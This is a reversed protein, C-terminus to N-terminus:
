RLNKIIEELIDGFEDLVEQMETFILEVPYIDPTAHVGVLFHVIIIGRAMLQACIKAALKMDDPGDDAIVLLIKRKKRSKALNTGVHALMHTDSNGGEAELNVFDSNQNPLGFDYIAESSYGWVHGIVNENLSLMAESFLTAIMKAKQLKRGSMSSSNDISLHIEADIDRETVEEMYIGHFGSAIRAVEGLDLEGDDQGYLTFESPTDIRKLKQVLNNIYSLIESKLAQYKVANESKQEMKKVPIKEERGVSIPGPHIIKPAKIKLLLEKRGSHRASAVYAKAIIQIAKALSPHIKIFNSNSKGQGNESNEASVCLGCFQQEQKSLSSSTEDAIPEGLVNKIKQAIWLLEEGDAQILRKTRIYKMISKVKQTRPRKHWKAAFFFDEYVDVPKWHRLAQQKEKETLGKLKAEFEQELGMLCIHLLRKRLDDAFGPARAPVQADDKRDMLINVIHVLTEGGLKEARQLFRTGLYRSFLIHGAEHYASGYGVRRLGNIFYWPSINVEAICDTSATEITFDWRLRIPRGTMMVLDNLLRPFEAKMIEAQRELEDAAKIQSSVKESLEILVPTM